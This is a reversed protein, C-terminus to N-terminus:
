LRATTKSFCKACKATHTGDALDEATLTKLNAGTCPLGCPEPSFHFALYHGPGPSKKLEARGCIKCTEQGPKAKAGRFERHPQTPLNRNMGTGAAGPSVYTIRSPHPTVPAKPGRVRELEAAITAQEEELAAVYEAHAAELRTM